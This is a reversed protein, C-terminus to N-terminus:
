RFVYALFPETAFVTRVMAHRTGIEASEAQLMPLGFCGVGDHPPRHELGPSFLPGSLSILPRGPFSACGGAILSRRWETSNATASVPVPIGGSIRSRTKSGNKVVFCAPLPLPRPRLMTYPNTLCDPPWRLM